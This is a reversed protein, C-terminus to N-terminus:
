VQVQDDTIPMFAIIVNTLQPLHGRLVKRVSGVECITSLLEFIQLIFNEFSLNEGAIHSAIVSGSLSLSLSLSLTHTHTHTTHTHTTHTVAPFCLFCLSLCVCVCVCVCVCLCVCV